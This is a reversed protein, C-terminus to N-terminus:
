PTKGTAPAPANPDPCAETDAAAPAASVAAPAAAPTQAARVPPGYKGCASCVVFALVIIVRRSM